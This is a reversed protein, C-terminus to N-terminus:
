TDGSAIDNANSVMLARPRLVGNIIDNSNRYVKEITAINKDLTDLRAPVDRLADLKTLVDQLKASIDDLTVFNRSITDLRTYVDELKVSMANVGNCITDVKELIGVCTCVTTIDGSTRDKDCDKCVIKGKFFLAKSKTEGCDACYKPM